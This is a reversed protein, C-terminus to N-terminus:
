YGVVTGLSDVFGRRTYHIWFSSEDHISGDINVRFISIDAEKSPYPNIMYDPNNFLGFFDGYFSVHGEICEHSYNMVGLTDLGERLLVYDCIDNMRKLCLGGLHNWQVDNCTLIWADEGSPYYRELSGNGTDILVLPDNFFSWLRSHALLLGNKWPKVEYFDFPESTWILPHSVPDFEGVKWSWMVVNNESAGSYFLMASDEIQGASRFSGDKITSQWYVQTKRVDVLKLGWGKDNYGDGRGGPYCCDDEFQEWYQVALMATTDSVIGIGRVDYGEDIIKYGEGCGELLIITPLVGLWAVFLLGIKQLWGMHARTQPM